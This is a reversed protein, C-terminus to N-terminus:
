AGIPRRAEWEAVAIFALGGVLATVGWAVGESGAYPVTTGPYRAFVISAVGYVAAGAGACWATLRWGRFRGAALFGVLVLGLAMSALTVWHDQRVHPDLPSGGRQLEAASLAFCVLPGAGALALLAMPLSPKAAPRVLSSRAPHLAVLIAAALLISGAVVVLYGPDSSIVSAVVVALATALVQLFASPKDEPRRAMALFAVTLIIGYLIGFGLDHVRHIGREDEDFWGIVAGVGFLGGLAGLAFIVTLVTFATRRGSGSPGPPRTPPDLAPESM